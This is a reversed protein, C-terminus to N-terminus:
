YLPSYPGSVDIVVAGAPPATRVVANTEQASVSASIKLLFENRQHITLELKGDNRSLDLELSMLVDNNYYYDSSRCEIDAKIGGNSTNLTISGKLYSLEMDSLLQEIGSGDWDSSFDFSATYSSGNKQFCADGILEKLADGAARADSCIDEPHYYSSQEAMYVAMNGVTLGSEALKMLEQDAGAIFPMEVSFWTDASYVADEDVLNLYNIFLPSHLYILGTDANYIIDVSLNALDDKITDLSKQLLEDDYAEQFILKVLNRLDYKATMDFSEGNMILSLNGSVSISSDGDISNFQKYEVAISAAARVADAAKETRQVSLWQNVTEFNKNVEAAIADRDYIVVTQSRESWAVTMGLAEAFFRVPVYTRGGSIYPETDMMRTDPKGDRSVTYECAGISFTVTVGNGTAAVSGSDYSVDYGMAEAIIRVPVMTRDNQIEPQADPFSVTSGNLQVSLAPKECARHFYSNYDDFAYLEDPSILDLDYEGYVYEGYFDDAPEPGPGDALALGGAMCFVAAAALLSVIMKALKKM